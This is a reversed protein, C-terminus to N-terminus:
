PRIIYKVKEASQEMQLVSLREFLKGISTATKTAFYFCRIYANGNGDYVFENAKVGEYTSIWYYACAIIHILYLMYIFTKLMRAAYQLRSSSTDTILDKTFVQDTKIYRWAISWTESNKTRGTPLVRSDM